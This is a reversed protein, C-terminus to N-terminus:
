GPSPAPFQGSSATVGGDVPIVAGTVFSADPGALFTIVAAVEDARGWRQMPIARRVQEALAPWRHLAQEQIPTDITAPCVVNVRIGEAALDIAAGRALNAAGAKAANYAWNNPDGGLASVSATVVVAPADSRRLAPLVARLGLAVARLNVALGADFREMPMTELRGASAIGANLVAVDLGGFHEVATEVMAANGAETTVDVVAPVANEVSDVWGLRDADRDAAVVRAGEALMREATARGIGSAAGTVVAVRGLLRQAPLTPIV